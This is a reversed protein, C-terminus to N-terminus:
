ELFPSGTDLLTRVRERPLLKGRATHKDRAAQEGGVTVTGVKEKLDDVLAKMREVNARFEPSRTNLQSKIASM